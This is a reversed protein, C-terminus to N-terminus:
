RYTGGFTPTWFDAMPENAVALSSSIPVLCLGRSRLDRKPTDADRQQQMPPVNELYPATLVGVQEHLFKIYDIAEYLVSATDTKGFPSVLQQLATIRDGLKEKRVKFTPLSSPTEMRPKKFSAPEGGSKKAGLSSERAGESSSQISYYYFFEM